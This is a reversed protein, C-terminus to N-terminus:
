ENQKAEKGDRSLEMVKGYKNFSVRQFNENQDAGEHQVIALLANKVKNNM